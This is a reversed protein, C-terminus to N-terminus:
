VGSTHCICTQEKLLQGGRRHHKMMAAAASQSLNGIGSAMISSLILVVPSVM